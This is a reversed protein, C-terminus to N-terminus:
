KNEAPKKGTSPQEKLKEGAGLITASVPALAEKVADLSIAPERQRLAKRVDESKILQRTVETAETLSGCTQCSRILRSDPPLVVGLAMHILIAILLAKGGGLIAGLFRDFWGVLSIQVAHALMKGLLVIIIYTGIFMLAYSALFVVEPNDTLERLFPFFKDHYQGAAVYGLYLALLGTIQRLFGLWIGRGILIAFLSIVGIDYLTVGSGDM